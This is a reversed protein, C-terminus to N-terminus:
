TRGAYPDGHRIRELLMSPLGLPMEDERHSWKIATLTEVTAFSRYNPNFVVLNTGFVDDRFPYEHCSTYYVGDLNRYRVLDSVFRTVLYQPQFQGKRKKKERLFSGTLLTQLISPQRKHDIFPMPMRVDLVRLPSSIEVDAIWLGARVEKLKDEQLVEVVATRPDDALYVALQGTHNFRYARQPQAPFVGEVNAKKGGICRYWKQPALVTIRAKRVAAALEKGTAHLAPLTHFQRIFQDLDALKRADRSFMKDFRLREPPYPEVYDLLELSSECGPCTIQAAARKMESQTFGCRKFITELFVNSDSHCVECAYFRDQAMKVLIRSKRGRRNM